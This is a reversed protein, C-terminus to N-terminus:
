AWGSNSRNYLRRAVLFGILMAVIVLSGGRVFWVQNSDDRLAKNSETLQALQQKLKAESALLENNRKDVKVVNASVDRLRAFQQSVQELKAKTDNLDQTLSDRQSQLDQMQLLTKQHEAELNALKDTAAQLQDKAVPEDVLYQTQIWGELGDKMRVRSYGTDPNTELLELPTGSKIGKHLIHYAESQGARLPVYLTDRIYVTKAAALPVM